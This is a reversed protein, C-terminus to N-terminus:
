GGHSLRPAWYITFYIPIWSLMVFYWYLANESVDVFRRGEMPETYTMAALVATDYTDTLLHVTHLGLLMWVISGYADTNWRCNLAKFEWIRVILFAAAFLLCVLIGLRVQKIDLREAAKKTWENPIASALLIGTNLTGWILDPSGTTLPWVPEHSAYYFYVMLCLAFITSEIAILGMTGWWMVSRHSFGFSPLEAVDLKDDEM